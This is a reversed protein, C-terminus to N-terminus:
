RKCRSLTKALYQTIRNDSLDFRTPDYDGRMWLCYRDPSEKEGSDTVSFLEVGYATNFAGSKVHAEVPDRAYITVSLEM